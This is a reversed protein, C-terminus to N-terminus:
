PSSAPKPQLFRKVVERWGEGLANECHLTSIGPYGLLNNAAAHLMSCDAQSPIYGPGIRAALAKYDARTSGTLTQLEGHWWDDEDALLDAIMANAAESPFTIM